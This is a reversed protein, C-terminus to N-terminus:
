RKGKDATEDLFEIKRSRGDLSADADCEAEILV